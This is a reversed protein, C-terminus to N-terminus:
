EEYVKTFKSRRNYWNAGETTTPKNECKECQFRAPRLRIYVPQGFVPLHRLLIAEGYDHIKTIKQGCKRCIASKNTSKVTIVLENTKSTEIDLIKIDSINLQIEFKAAM